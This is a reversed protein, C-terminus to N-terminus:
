NKRPYRLLNLAVSEATRRLVGLNTSRFINKSIWSDALNDIVLSDKPSGTELSMVEATELESWSRSGKTHTGDTLGQYDVLNVNPSLSLMKNKWLSAVWRYAWTKIAGSDADAFNLKWALAAQLSGAIRKLEGIGLENVWSLDDQYKSWARDWTAWAYSEPFLSARSRYHPSTIYRQPVPNYGSVHGVLNDNEYETLCHNMYPFFDKSVRVDDEVVIVRGAESIAWTVAEPVALRLGLNSKRELIQVEDTWDIIRVQDIVARVRDIDKPNDKPGDVGVFIRKPEYPRMSDILGKIQDPRNYALILVPAEPL